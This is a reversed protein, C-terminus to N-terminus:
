TVLGDYLCDLSLDPCVSEYYQLTLAAASAGLRV